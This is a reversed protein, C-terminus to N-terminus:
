AAGGEQRARAAARDLASQDLVQFRACELYGAMAARLLLDYDVDTEGCDEIDDAARKVEQLEAYTLPAAEQAPAAAGWRALVARGFARQAVRPDTYGEWDFAERFAEIEADTPAAGAAPAQLREMEAEFRDWAKAVMKDLVAEEDASVQEAAAATPAAPAQPAAALVARYCEGARTLTGTTNGLGLDISGARLMAKTPEVPVLRWGEPAAPAAGADAQPRPPHAYLPESVLGYKARAPTESFWSGIEPEEPDSIRYGAPEAEQAAPAALAARAQWGEWM